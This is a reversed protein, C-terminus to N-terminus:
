QQVREPRSGSHNGIANLCESLITELEMKSSQYSGNMPNPLIDRLQRRLAYVRSAIQYMSHFESLDALSTKIFQINELTRAYEISHKYRERASEHVKRAHAVFARIRTLLELKEM